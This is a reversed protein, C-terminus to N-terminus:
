YKYPRVLQACNKQLFNVYIAREAQKVSISKEERNKGELALDARIVDPGGQPGKPASSHPGTKNAVQRTIRGANKGHHEQTGM